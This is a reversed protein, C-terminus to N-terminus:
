RTRLPILSSIAAESSRQYEVVLGSCRKCGILDRRGKWESESAPQIGTEGHSQTCHTSRPDPPLPSTDGRRWRTTLILTCLRRTSIARMERSHSGSGLFTGDIELLGRPSSISEIRPRPLGSGFAFVPLGQACTCNAILPDRRAGAVLCITPTGPSSM